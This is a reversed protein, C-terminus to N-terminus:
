RAIALATVFIIFAAGSLLSRVAHLQGWRRLLHEAESSSVDITSLGKNTPLIAIVTFPILFLLLLGGTLWRLDRDLWWTWLAAGSGALALPAQMRAGRRYSPRWQTVALQTGCSLRAPHEALSVYLAAGFFTGASLVALIQLIV